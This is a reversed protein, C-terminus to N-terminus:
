NQVQCREKTTKSIENEKTIKEYEEAAAEETAIIEALGKEFDAEIVELMSIIGGGAGSAKDHGGEKAYYERLVKLALKVGEVGQEMEARNKKYATNEEERIKDMEQQLTALEALEKSLVAVEEKLMKSDATMKDIKTTLEAIEDNLEERKTKTEGMEKDCYGKKAAEEEAERLLQEIMDM